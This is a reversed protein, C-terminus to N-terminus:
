DVSNIFDLCLDCLHGKDENRRYLLIGDCYPGDCTALDDKLPKVRCNLCIYQEKNFQIMAKQECSPCEMLPDDGGDM